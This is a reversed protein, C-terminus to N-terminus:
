PLAAVLAGTLVDYGLARPHIDPPAEAMHTTAGTTGAMPTFGDAVLVGYAGAMEAAIANMRQMVEDTEQELGIVSFGFSFPNYAQLFIITADPAADTLSDLIADLNERYAALSGDIRAACGPSSTSDACEGAGLHGLLDNAGIDITIYSVDNDDIFDLATDLQGGRLLSGSAEGSVGFNRLGLNPERQSLQKHFRSVFGDQPQDVGVNATLSDGIAVYYTEGTAQTSNVDGPGYVETPPNQTSGIAAANDRLGDLLSQATLLNGGAQTGVIVIGADSIEVIQVSARNEDLIENVDLVGDVLDDLAGRVAGPMNFAGVEIDILEIEFAGAVLKYSVAGNAALDGNKFEADFRLEGDGNEAGVADVTVRRIPTEHDSLGDQLYATMESESLEIRFGAENEALDFKAQASALDAANAPDSPGSDDSIAQYVKYANYGGYGIGLVTLVPFAIVLIMPLPEDVFFGAAGFMLIILVAAIAWVGGLTFWVLLGLFVAAVVGLIFALVRM